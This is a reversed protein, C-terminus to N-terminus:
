VPQWSLTARHRYLWLFKLLNMLFKSKVFNHVSCKVIANYRTGSVRINTFYIVLGPWHWVMEVFPCFPKLKEPELLKICVPILVTFSWVFPTGGSYFCNCAKATYKSVLSNCETDTNVVVSFQVGRNGISLLLQFKGVATWTNSILPKQFYNQRSSPVSFTSTHSWVQLLLGAIGREHDINAQRRTNNFRTIVTGIIRWSTDDEFGRFFSAQRVEAPPPNIGSEM